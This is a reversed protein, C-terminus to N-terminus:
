LDNNVHHEHHSHFRTELHLGLKMCNGGSSSSTSDLLGLSHGIEHCWISQRAKLTNVGTSEAIANITERNIQVSSENCKGAVVSTRCYRIGFYRSDNLRDDLFMDTGSACSQPWSVVLNLTQLYALNHHLATRSTFIDFRSLSPNPVWCGSHDKDDAKGHNTGFQDAHAYGFVLCAALIILKKM